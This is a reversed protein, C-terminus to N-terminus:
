TTAFNSYAGQTISDQYEKFLAITESTDATDDLCILVNADQENIADELKQFIIKYATPVDKPNAKQM